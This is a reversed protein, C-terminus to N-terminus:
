LTGRWISMMKRIWSCVTANGQDSQNGADETAHHHTHRVEYRLKEQDVVQVQRVRLPGDYHVAAHGAQQPGHQVREDSSVHLVRTPLVKMHVVVM